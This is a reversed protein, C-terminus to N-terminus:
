PRKAPMEREVKQVAQSVVGGVSEATRGLLKGAKGQIQEQRAASQRSYWYSVGGVILAALLLLFIIALCGRGSRKTENRNM